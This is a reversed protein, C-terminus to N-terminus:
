TTLNQTLAPMPEQAASTQTECIIDEQAPERVPRGVLDHEVLEVHDLMQMVGDIVDAAPLVAGELPGAVLPEDSGLVQPQPPRFGHGVLLARRETGQM